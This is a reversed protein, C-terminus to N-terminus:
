DVPLKWSRVTMDFAASILTKGNHHFTLATVGAKHGILTKLKKQQPVDYLHILGVPDDLEPMEAVSLFRGDDSIAAAMAFRPLSDFKAVEKKDPLSFVRPRRDIGAIALLKADKTVAFGLRLSPFTPRVFGSSRLLFADSPPTAFALEGVDRPKVILLDGAINLAAVETDDNVFALHLGTAGLAHRMTFVPDRIVPADDPGPVDYINLTSDRTTGVALRRGDRSFAIAHFFRDYPNFHTMGSPGEAVRTFVMRGADNGVVTMAGDSSIACSGSNQLPSNGASHAIYEPKKGELDLSLILGDGDIALLRGDPRVALAKIEANPYELLRDQEGVTLDARAWSRRGNQEEAGDWVNLGYVADDENFQAFLKAATARDGVASAWQCYVQANWKSGPYLRAWDDYSRRLQERDLGLIRVAMDSPRWNTGAILAARYADGYRDRTREAVHDLFAAFRRNRAEDSEGGQAKWQMAVAAALARPAWDCHTLIRDVFDDVMDLTWDTDQAMSLQLFYTHSIKPDDREVDHLLERARRQLSEIQPANEARMRANGSQLQKIYALHFQVSALKAAASQPYQVIWKNCLVLFQGRIDVPNRGDYRLPRCLDAIRTFKEDGSPFKEANKVYGGAWQEIKAFTADKASTPWIMWRFKLGVFLRQFQEPWNPDPETEALVDPVDSSPVIVVPPRDSISSVTFTEGAKCQRFFVNYPLSAGPSSFRLTVAARWSWGNRQYVENTWYLYDIEDRGQHDLLAAIVVPGDALVEVKIQGARRESSRFPSQRILAPAGRLGAPIPGVCLEDFRVTQLPSPYTARISKSEPLVQLNAILGVGPEELDVIPKPPQKVVAPKPVPRPKPKDFPAFFPFASTASPTATPAPNPTPAQAAVFSGGSLILWVVIAGRDVSIM